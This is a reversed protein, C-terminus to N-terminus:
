LLLILHILPWRSMNGTAAQTVSEAFLEGTDIFAM